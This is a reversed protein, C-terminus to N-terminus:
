EILVLSSEGLDLPCLRILLQLPVGSSMGVVKFIDLIDEVSYYLPMETVVRDELVAGLFFTM